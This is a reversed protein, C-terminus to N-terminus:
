GIKQFVHFMLFFFGLLPPGFQITAIKRSSKSSFFLILGALVMFGGSFSVLPGAIQPKFQNVYYLGVFMQLALFLNYFGQNFAWLKVTDISHSPVKLFKAGGPRQMIISELIFFYIHIIGSLGFFFYSGWKAYYDM